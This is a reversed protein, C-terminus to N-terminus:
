RQKISGRPCELHNFCSVFEVQGVKLAVGDDHELAVVARPQRHYHTKNERSGERMEGPSLGEPIPHPDGSAEAVHHAQVGREQHVGSGMEKPVPRIIFLRPRPLIGHHSEQGDTFAPMVPSCLAKERVTTAHQTFPFM